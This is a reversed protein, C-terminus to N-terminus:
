SVRVSNVDSLKVGGGTAAGGLTIGLVPRSTSATM